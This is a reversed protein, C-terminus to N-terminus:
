HVTFIVTMTGQQEPTGDPSASFKTSKAADKAKAYLCANTTNSGREGPTASVVNGNQDVIIRLVVTGEEHCDANISPRRLLSRGTLKYGFPATGMSEGPTKGDPVGANGPNNTTGDGGPTGGKSHSFKNLVGALQVSVQPQPPATTTDVKDTKIPKKASKISSPEEADNTVVQSSPAVAPKSATAKNSKEPNDNEGVNNQEVHGSGNVNNGFDAELQVQLEPPPIEKYPPLPTIIIYFFLFLLVAAHVVLTIIFAIGKNNRERKETVTTM